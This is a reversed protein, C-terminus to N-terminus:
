SGSPDLLAVLKDAIEQTSRMREDIEAKTALERAILIESVATSQRVGQIAYEMTQALLPVLLKVDEDSIMAAGKQGEATAPYLERM